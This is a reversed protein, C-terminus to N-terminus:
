WVLFSHVRAPYFSSMVKCFSPAPFRHVSRYRNLFRVPRDYRTLAPMAFDGHDGRNRM